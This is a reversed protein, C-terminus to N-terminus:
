RRRRFPKHAKRHPPREFHAPPPSSSVNIDQTQLHLHGGSLRTLNQVLTDEDPSSGQQRLHQYLHRLLRAGLLKQETEPLNALAEAWLLSFLGYQRFPIHAQPYQLTPAPATPLPEPPEWPFYTRLREPLLYYFRERRLRLEEESLREAGEAQLVWRFTHRLFAPLSSEPLQEAAAELLYSLWIGMERKPHPRPVKLDPSLASNPM